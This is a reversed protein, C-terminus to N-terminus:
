LNENQKKDTQYASLNWANVPYAVGHLSLSSAKFAEKEALEDHKATGLDFFVDAIRGPLWRLASRGKERILKRANKYDAKSVKM